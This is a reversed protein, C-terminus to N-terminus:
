LRIGKRRAVEEILGFYERFHAERTFRELFYRYGAEGCGSRFAQDDAMRDLAAALEAENEYVLGGGSERIIDPPAGIPCVISPTKVAFGEIIIQGLVEFCISPVIVALAREYLVKLNRRDLQGVFTVNPLGRALARLEGEMAGEGAVLLRHRPNRAFVPILNQLGKIKELRGVFLFFPDPHAAVIERGKASASEPAADLEPLFYPIVRMDLGLEAHRRMTFASPSIFGDVHRLSRKVLGTYRWLQPPRKHVLVCRLCEKEVCPERNFKFLVHTPCVLWHEHTTYLKIGGGMKLVKPGGVLSVNHFHVVDHGQDLVRAIKRRKLWPAGTQQTLLPSLIGAPSRLPWTTVREHNEIPPGDRGGLSRYADVDHIVDVSHGAKALENTLRYIFIGDGGFNQPPYFTTIMCFKLPRMRPVIGPSNMFGVRGAPERARDSRQEDSM